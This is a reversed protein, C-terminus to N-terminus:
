SKGLFRFDKRAAGTTITGYYADTLFEVAGAEATTNLAGSTFKLPATSAATTGAKLHLVATPSTTGIGVNGQIILGGTPAATGAYGLGVSLGGALASEGVVSLKSVPSTTGIGVNGSTSKVTMATADGPRFLIDGDAAATNLELNGTGSNRLQAYGPGNIYIKPGAVRM